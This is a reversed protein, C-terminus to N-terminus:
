IPTCVLAAAQPGLTSRVHEVSYAVLKLSSAHVEVLKAAILKKLAGDFAVPSLVKFGPQRVSQAVLACDVGLVLAALAVTDATASNNLRM